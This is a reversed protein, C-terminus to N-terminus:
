VNFMVDGWILCTGNSSQRLAPESTIQQKGIFAMVNTKEISINNQLVQLPGEQM